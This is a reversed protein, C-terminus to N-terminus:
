GNKAVFADYWAGVDPAEFVQDPNIEEWDDPQTMHGSETCYTVFEEKTLEIANESPIYYRGALDAWGIFWGQKNGWHGRDEVYGPVERRGAANITMKYKIVAM